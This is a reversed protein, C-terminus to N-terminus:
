STATRPARRAARARRLAPVRAPRAPSASRRLAAAQAFVAIHEPTTGCCGGVVNLWAARRRLGAHGGGHRGPTEDYGGFANPLGANPYALIYRDTLGALEEVHPACSAPASRATSGSPWCTPTPSALDCFAEPTQGSLTRGSADTITGSVIVALRRGRPRSPASSARVPRGQRQAHRLRDRGAPPRRRRGAPRAAQEHYARQSRTSPSPATRRPREVDPSLIATRNTPGISGAVFRPRGDRAFRDASRRALRPAPSPQDRAVHEELGYDALAVSTANFTNTEIIDAGAALYADHIEGVADPQTLCLLDNAGALPRPHHAFREGRLEEERLRLRQIMTGMAGDLVLVRRELARRLDAARGASGGNVDM